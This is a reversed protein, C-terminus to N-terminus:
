TAPHRRKRSLNRMPTPKEQEPLSVTTSAFFSPSETHSSPHCNHMHNLLEFLHSACKGNQMYRLEDMACDWAQEQPWTWTRTGRCLWVM